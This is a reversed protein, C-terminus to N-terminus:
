NSNKFLPSFCTFFMTSLMIVIHLSCQALSWMHRLVSSRITRPSSSWSLLIDRCATIGKILPQLLSSPPLLLCHLGVALNSSIYILSCTLSDFLLINSLYNIIILFIQYINLLFLIVATMNHNLIFFFFASLIEAKMMLPLIGLDENKVRCFWLM